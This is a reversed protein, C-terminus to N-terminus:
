CNKRRKRKFFWGALYAFPTSLGWFLAVYGTSSVVSYLVSPINSLSPQIVAAIAQQMSPSHLVAIALMLCGYTKTSFFFYVRRWKNLFASVGLILYFILLPLVVLDIGATVLILFLGLVNALVSRKNVGCTEVLVGILIIVAASAVEAWIGSVVPGMQLNLLDTKEM